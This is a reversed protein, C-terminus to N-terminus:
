GEAASAEAAGSKVFARMLRMARGGRGNGIKVMGAQNWRM